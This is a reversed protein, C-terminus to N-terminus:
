IEIVDENLYHYHCVGCEKFYINKHSSDAIRYQIIVNLLQRYSEKSLLHKCKLKNREVFERLVSECLLYKYEIQGKNNKYDPDSICKQYKQDFVSDEILDDTNTTTIFFNTQPFFQEYGNDSFTNVALNVDLKYYSQMGTIGHGQMYFFNCDDMEFDFISKDILVDNTSKWVYEVGLGKCKKLVSKDLDTFGFTHGFNNRTEVLVKNGFIEEWVNVYCSMETPTINDTKTVSIVIKPFRSIVPKNYLLYSKLNDIDSPKTICGISCYASKDVVNELKM